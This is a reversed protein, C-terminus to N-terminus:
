YNSILCSVGCGGDARDGGCDGCIVRFCRGIVMIIIIVVIIAVM